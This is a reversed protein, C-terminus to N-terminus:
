VPYIYVAYIFAPMSARPLMKAFPPDHANSVAQDYLVRNDAGTIDCLKTAWVAAHLPHRLLEDILRARKDPRTDAQFKRIEEPLPLQGIVDVYIRRVFTLDDCVPSPVINLQKLKLAIVRDLADDLKERPAAIKPEAFPVLAFTYGIQGAYHALIHTDGSRQAVIRAQADVAAITSDFIDFRALRTVDVEAGSSLKALVKLSTPAADPKTLVQPPEVRVSVVRGEQAPAYPAGAEIWRRLLHYEDSGPRLRVEGGHAVKGTPKLLLLSEEPSQLNLRRDLVGRVQRYDEAADSAFLSLRFGGKGAFSGHCAGASCGLKYLVPVVERGFLPTDAHATGTTLLSGLIVPMWLRRV